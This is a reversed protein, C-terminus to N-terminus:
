THNERPLREALTSPATPPHGKSVLSLAPQLPGGLTLSGVQARLGESQEEAPQRVGCAERRGASGREGRRHFSWISLKQVQTHTHVYTHTHTTCGKGECIFYRLLTLPQAM